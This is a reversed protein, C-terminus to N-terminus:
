FTRDFEISTTLGLEQLKENFKAKELPGMIAQEADSHM